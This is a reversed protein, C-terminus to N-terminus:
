SVKPKRLTDVTEFGGDAIGMARVVVSNIDDEDEATLVTVVNGDRRETIVSFLQKISWDTSGIMDIDTLLLVLPCPYDEIRYTPFISFYRTLSATKLDADDSFPVRSLECMRLASMSYGREEVPFDTIKKGRNKSFPIMPYRVIFEENLVLDSLLAKGVTNADRGTLLLGAGPKCVIDQEDDFPQQRLYSGALLNERYAVAAKWADTDGPEWAPPSQINLTSFLSGSRRTM